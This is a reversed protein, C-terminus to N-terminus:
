FIQLLKQIEADQELPHRFHKGQIVSYINRRGSRTSELYGGDVLDKLVKQAFRETIGVAEAVDRIRAEPHKGVFILVHAHNSLFTWESREQESM